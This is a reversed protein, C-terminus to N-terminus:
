SARLGAKYISSIYTKDKHSENAVLTLWLEEIDDADKIEMGWAKALENRNLKSLNERIAKACSYLQYFIKPVKITKGNEIKINKQGGSTLLDRFSSYRAQHKQFLHLNPRDYKHQSSSFVEPFLIMVEIKFSEQAEKDLDSFVRIIPTIGTDADIWWFEQGKKITQRYYTKVKEVKENPSRKNFTASDEGMKAFVDKGKELEMCIRYRPSHTVVIDSVCEEHPRFMIESKGKKGRKGFFVYIRDYDNKKTSETISNGNITWSDGQTFKAEIGFSEIRIDPFSHKGTLEYDQINREKCIAEIVEYLRDQFEEGTSISALDTKLLRGKAETLIEIFDKETIKQRM